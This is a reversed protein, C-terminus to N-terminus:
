TSENLSLHCVWVFSGKEKKGGRQWLNSGLLGGLFVAWFYVAHGIQSHVRASHACLSACVCVCIDPNSLAPEGAILSNHLRSRKVASKRRKRWLTSHLSDLRVDRSPVSREENSKSFIQPLKLINKM